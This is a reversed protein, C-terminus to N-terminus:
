PKNLKQDRWNKCYQYVEEVSAGSIKYIDLMQQLKRFYQGKPDRKYEKTLNKIDRTIGM